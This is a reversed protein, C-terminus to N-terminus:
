VLHRMVRSVNRVAELLEFTFCYNAGGEPYHFLPFYKPWVGSSTQERFLEVISQELEVSSPLISRKSTGIPREQRERMEGLRACLCAAMGMAVPDMRVAHNAVVLSRQRSFDLAAWECLVDWRTGDLEINSRDVGDVFWYLVAAAPGYSNITFFEVSKSIGDAVQQLSKQQIPSICDPFLDELLSRNFRARSYPDPTFRKFCETKDSLTVQDGRALDELNTSKAIRELELALKDALDRPHETLSSTSLGELSEWVERKMVNRIHQAAANSPSRLETTLRQLANPDVALRHEWWKKDPEQAVRAPLAKAEVLLGLTRLVLTTTFANNETLGSSMWPASVVKEFLRRIVEEHGKPNESDTRYFERWQRTLALAMVCSCTTTVNVDEPHSESTPTRVFGLESPERCFAKLDSRLDKLLDQARQRLRRLDGIKIGPM